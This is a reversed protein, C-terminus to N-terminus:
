KFWKFEVGTQKMYERQLRKYEEWAKVIQDKLGNFEYDTIENEIVPRAM